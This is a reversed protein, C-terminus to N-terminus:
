LHKKGDDSPVQYLKEIDQIIIVPRKKRESRHVFVNHEKYGTELAIEDLARELKELVQQFYSLKEDKEIM